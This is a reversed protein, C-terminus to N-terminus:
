ILHDYFTQQALLDFSKLRKIKPKEISVNYFFLEKFYNVDDNKSSITM